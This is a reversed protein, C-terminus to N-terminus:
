GRAAIEAMTQKAHPGKFHFIFPPDASACLEEYEARTAVTRNYKDGDFTRVTFRKGDVEKKLSVQDGYWEHFRRAMKRLTVLQRVFLVESRTYVFAYIYPMVESLYKGRFEPYRGWEPTDEHIHREDGPTRVTLGIENPELEPLEFPRAILMDCDLYLTPEKVPLSSYAELRAVMINPSLTATRHHSVGPVPPTARDSIQVVDLADGFHRRVSRVMLSPMWVERGVWFFVIRKPNSM